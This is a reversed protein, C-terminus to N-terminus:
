KELDKGPELELHCVSCLGKGRKEKEQSGVQIMTLSTWSSDGEVALLDSFNCPPSAPLRNSLTLFLLSAFQFSFAISPVIARWQCLQLSAAFDTHAPTPLSYHWVWFFLIILPTNLSCSFGGSGVWSSYSAAWNRVMYFLHELFGHSVIKLRILKGAPLFVLM